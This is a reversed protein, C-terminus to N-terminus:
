LEGELIYKATIAMNRSYDRCESGDSVGVHMAVMVLKGDVETFVPSGSFGQITSCTHTICDDRVKVPFCAKELKSWLIAQVFGEHTGSPIPKGDMYGPVFLRQMKKITKVAEPMTTAAVTKKLGGENVFLFDADCDTVKCHELRSIILPGDASIISFRSLNNEAGSLCHRATVWRGSGLYSITCHHIGDYTLSGISNSVKQIYQSGVDRSSSMTSFCNMVQAVEEDNLNKVNDIYAECDSDKYQGVVKRIDGNTITEPKSGNADNEFKQGDLNDLVLPSVTQQTEKVQSNFSILLPQAPSPAPDGAWAVGVGHPILLLLSIVYHRVRSM